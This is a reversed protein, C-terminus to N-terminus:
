DSLEESQLDISPKEFEKDIKIDQVSISPEISEGIGNNELFDMDIQSIDLVIQQDETREL